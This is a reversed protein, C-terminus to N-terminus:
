CDVVDIVVAFWEQKFDVIPSKALLELWEPHVGSDQRALLKYWSPKISRTDIEFQCIAALFSFYALYIVFADLSTSLSSRTPSETAHADFYGFKSPLPPM